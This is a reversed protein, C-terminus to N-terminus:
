KDESEIYELPNFGSWETGLHKSVEAVAEPSIDVKTIDGEEIEGYVEIHKGLVEGFYAEKGMASAVEDETAVFLGELYGSRGCDWYFRYLYKKNEM